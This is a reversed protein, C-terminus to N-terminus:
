QSSSGRGQARSPETARVRLLPCLQGPLRAPGGRSRRRARPSSGASCHAFGESVGPGRSGNGRRALTVCHARAGSATVPSVGLRGSRPRAARPQVPLAPLFLVRWLRSLVWLDRECVRLGSRRSGVGSSPVAHPARGRRQARARGAPRRHARRRRWGRTPPSTVTAATASLSPFQKTIHITRDHTRPGDTHGRRLFTQEPGRGM